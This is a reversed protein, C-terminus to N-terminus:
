GPKSARSRATVAAVALFVLTAGIVSGVIGSGLLVAKPVDPTGNAAAEGISGTTFLVGLLGIIVCGVTAWRDRRRLLLLSGALIILPAIPPSIATGRTAFESGADTGTDGFQAPLNLVIAVITAVIELVLVGAGFVLLRLQAVPM